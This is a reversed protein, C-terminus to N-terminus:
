KFASDKKYYIEYIEEYKREMASLSYETKVRLAAESSLARARDLNSLVTLLGYSLNAKNDEVVTGTSGDVILGAKNSSKTILVPVHAACAELLSVPLGESKSCLVFVDSLMLLDAVDERYGLFHVYANIKLANAQDVLADRCEGDGVILVHTNPCQGLVCSFSELFLKHNKIPHLRAVMIIIKSDEPLGLETKTKSQQVPKSQQNLAYKKFDVGNTIVQIKGAPLGDQVVSEEALEKSVVIWKNSIKCLFRKELQRRWRGDTNHRSHETTILLPTRALKAAIGAYFLAAQNHAHVIDFKKKRFLHALQFFLRWDFGKKRGIVLVEVGINQLESVLEGGFDLCVVTISYKKQDLLGTLSVILKEIGGIGMSLTIHCLKIRSNM